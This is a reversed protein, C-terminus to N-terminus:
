EAVPPTGTSNKRRRGRGGRRRPGATSEAPDADPAPEAKSETATETGNKNETEPSVSVTPLEPAPVIPEVPAEEVQAPLESPVTQEDTRQSADLAKAGGRRRGRRRRSRGGTGQPRAGPEVLAASQAEAALTAEQAVEEPAETPLTAGEENIPVPGQVIPQTEPAPTPQIRRGPFQRWDIYHVEDAHLILDRHVSRDKDLDSSCV